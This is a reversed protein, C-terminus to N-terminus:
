KRTAFGVIFTSVMPIFTKMTYTGGANMVLLRVLMLALLAGRKKMIGVFFM